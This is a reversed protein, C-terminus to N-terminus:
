RILSNESSGSVVRSQPFPVREKRAKADGEARRWAEEPM